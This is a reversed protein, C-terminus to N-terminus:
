VEENHEYAVKGCGTCVYQIKRKHFDPEANKSSGKRIMVVERKEFWAQRCSCREFEEPM